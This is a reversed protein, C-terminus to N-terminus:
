GLLLRRAQPPLARVLDGLFQEQVRYRAGGAAANGQEIRSARVLVGDVAQGALGKKFIHYRIAWASETFVNGIRIWYSVAETRGPAKVLMRMGHVSAGPSGAFPLSVSSREVLQFGQATYCVDPRHIKVEQRQNRGYAIALLVVDGHSNGYARMLLDDYPRDMNPEDATGKGPDIQDGSYAVEKWEGFQTPISQALSERRNVPLPEPQLWQVGLATAIMALGLVIPTAQRQSQGHLAVASV